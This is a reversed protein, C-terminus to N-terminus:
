LMTGFFYLVLITSGLMHKMNFNKRLHREWTPDTLFGANCKIIPLVYKKFCSHILLFMMALGSVWHYGCPITNVNPHIDNPKKRHLKTKAYNHLGFEYEM